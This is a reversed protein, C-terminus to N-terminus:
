FDKKVYINSYNVLHKIRIIHFNSFNLTFNILIIIVLYDEPVSIQWLNSQHM